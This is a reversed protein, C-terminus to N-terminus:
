RAPGQQQVQQQQLERRRAARENAKRGATDILEALKDKDALKRLLVNVLPIFNHKRRANESRYRERKEQEDSLFVSLLERESRLTQVARALKKEANEIKRDAADIQETLVLTRDKCVAMLNFRIESSSYTAMRAEIIPRVKSLWDADTCPGLNIPAPNLGDLEYLAGHIPVYSIFHFLDEDQGSAPQQENVFAESRAFSNHVRRINESNSITLGKMDPPLDQAFERFQVLEKGLDIDNRNMLISLIAQTACANNIVQKAFFVHDTTTSHQSQDLEMTDAATNQDYKFLFILGYVPNLNAINDFDWVEEVQVGSVGMEAILQTFVGPDSEILCWNGADSM